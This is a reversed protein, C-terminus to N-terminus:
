KLYFYSLIIRFNNLMAPIMYIIYIFLIIIIIDVVHM